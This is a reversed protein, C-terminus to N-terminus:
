DSPPTEPAEAPPPEDRDETVGACDQGTGAEQRCETDSRANRAAQLSQLGRHRAQCTDCEAATGPAPEGALLSGSLGLCVGLVLLRIM